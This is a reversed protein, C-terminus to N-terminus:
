FCHILSFVQCLLCINNINTLRHNSVCLVIVLSTVKPCLLSLNELDAYDFGPGFKSLRNLGGELSLTTVKKQQVQLFACYINLFYFAKLLVKLWSPCFCLYSSGAAYDMEGCRVNANRLMCSKSKLDYLCNVSELVLMFKECGNDDFEDDDCLMNLVLVAEDFLSDFNRRDAENRTDSCAGEVDVPPCSESGDIERQRLSSLDQMMDSWASEAFSSTSCQHANQFSTESARVDVSKQKDKKAFPILVIFEGDSIMNSSIQSQLSLKTGKHLLHFNPSSAAPPFIQKLLLKLDQITRNSSISVTITEGTLTRVEIETEREDM